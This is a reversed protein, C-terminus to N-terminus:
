KNSQLKSRLADVTIYGSFQQIVKKDANMVIFTPLERVGYQQAIDMNADIDVRVPIFSSNILKIIDSNQLTTEGTKKCWHCWDAKVYVLVMRKEQKATAFASDSWSQWAIGQALCNTSYLIAAVTILFVSISLRMSKLVTSM